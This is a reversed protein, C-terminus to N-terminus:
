RLVMEHEGVRSATMLRGARRTTTLSMYGIPNMRRRGQRTTSDVPSSRLMSPRAPRGPWTSAPQPTDRKTSKGERWPPVVAVRASFWLLAGDTSAWRLRPIPGAEDDVVEVGRVARRYGHLLVRAFEPLELLVHAPPDVPDPACM